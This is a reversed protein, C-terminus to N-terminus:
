YQTQKKVNPTLVLTTSQIISCLDQTISKKLTKIDSVNVHGKQPAVTVGTLLRTALFLFLTEVYSM